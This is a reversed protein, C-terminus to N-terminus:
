PRRSGEITAHCRGYRRRASERQDEDIIVISAEAEGDAMSGQHTVQLSYDQLRYM